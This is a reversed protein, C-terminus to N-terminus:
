MHPGVPNQSFLPIGCGSPELDVYAGWHKECVRKVESDNTTKYEVRKGYNEQITCTSRFETGSEDCKSNTWRRFLPPPSACDAELKAIYSDDVNYYEDCRCVVGNIEECSGVFVDPGCSNVSVSVYIGCLFVIRVITRKM